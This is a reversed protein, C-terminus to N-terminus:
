PVPAHSAGELLADALPTRAYMVNRGVRARVVLGSAHLIKLHDAINGPSRGLRRALASTHTPEAVLELIEARTQGILQGVAAEPGHTGWFLSAV